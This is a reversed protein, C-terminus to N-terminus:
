RCHCCGGSLSFYNIFLDKLEMAYRYYPDEMEDMMARFAESARGGQETHEHTGSVTTVVGPKDTVTESRTGETTRAGETSEETHEVSIKGPTESGSVTSTAGPSVTTTERANIWESASAGSTVPIDESIRVSTDSGSNTTVTESTSAESSTTDTGSKSSKGEGVTSSDSGSVTRIDTGTPTTVDKYTETWGYGLSALKSQQSEYEAIILKYRRDMTACKDTLRQIWRSVCTGNIPSYRWVSWCMAILDTRYPNSDPIASDFVDIANGDDDQCCKLIAAPSLVPFDECCDCSM